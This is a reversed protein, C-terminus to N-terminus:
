KKNTQFTPTEGLLNNIYQESDFPTLDDIHEGWSLFAVPVHLDQVISFVIGGKATGDMKTLVIGDLQTAEHFIKAQSFSNQGLMSDVTLLTCVTYDPLQKTVIRKIKELEKMLNDKTQLRGATDIILIDSKSAKLQECANFTVAAPDQGPKGMILHAGAQNAWQQLQEPAAARFTDAAALMVSKNQKKFYNALKGSLTTKGSGNIGVLLYVQAEPVTKQNQLIRLLEQEIILQVDKGTQVSGQRHAQQIQDILKKTTAVGTDAKILLQYLEDITTQDITSQSFIAHLKTTVSSYIKQLKEKIFNFMTSAKMLFLYAFQSQVPQRSLYRM